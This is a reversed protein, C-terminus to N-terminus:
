ETLKGTYLNWVPDKLGSVFTEHAAQENPDITLALPQPRTRVGNTANNAKKTGAKQHSLDFGPQQGGVLHLYVEALL